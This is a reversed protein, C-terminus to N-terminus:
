LVHLVVCKLYETEPMALLVPHDAAAGRMALVRANRQASTAARKLAELFVPTEVFHSCSSTILLGGPKLARMADRNLAQYLGLAKKAQLRSKALAPPDLVVVDYLEGRALVSQVDACEFACQGAGNLEAHQRAQELAPQSTDVGLVRAAGYKAAHLSWAGTYCHGDLVSAGNAFPRLLDWNERQDLFLGTKQGATISVRLHLGHVECEVPSSVRGYEQVAGAITLRVGHVGSIALFAEALPAAYRRYFACSTHATVVEGYRDAILGPLGDSEGYVWRYVRRRPM